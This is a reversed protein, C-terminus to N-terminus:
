GIKIAKENAFKQENVLNFDSNVLSTIREQELDLVALFPEVDESLLWNKAEYIGNKADMVAQYLVAAAIKRVDVFYLTKMLDMDNKQLVIPDKKVRTSLRKCQTVIDKQEFLECQFMEEGKSLLLFLPM